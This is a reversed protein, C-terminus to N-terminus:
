RFIYKGNSDVTYTPLLKTTEFKDYGEKLNDWLKQTAPDTYKKKLTALKDATLKAPFIHIQINKQGANRAEVAMVYLEEIMPDTIPICGITVCNGHIMIAGGADRKCAFIKDSANPYSVGLSLHYASYPNFTYINYFGEPVQYDGQCRKPGLTGSNSCVPYTTYLQYVPNKPSKVWAEVIKEDKFIRIFLEFRTTDAGIKVLDSKIGPWKNTYAQKVRAIKKQQTRFSENGPPNGKSSLSFIIAVSIFFATFFIFLRSNM